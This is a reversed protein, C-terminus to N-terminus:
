MKRCPIFRGPANGSGTVFSVYGKANCQKMAYPM